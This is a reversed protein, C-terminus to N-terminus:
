RGDDNEFAIRGCPVLKSTSADVTLRYFLDQGKLFLGTRSVGTDSTSLHSLLIVYFICDENPQITREIKTGQHFNSEVITRINELGYGFKSVKDLTMTDQPVFLKFHVGSSPFIVISDAPFNVTIQVPTETNNVVRSWLVAHGYPIENATYLTGGGRPFGNQIIIGLGASDTYNAETHFYTNDSFEQTSIRSEDIRITDIKKVDETM